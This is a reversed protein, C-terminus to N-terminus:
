GAPAVPAPRARGKKPIGLMLFELALRPNANLAMQEMTQRVESALRTVEQTTLLGAQRELEAQYDVNTVGAPCGSKVLMLDRWWGLWLSLLSEIDERSKEFRGAWEQALGLREAYDLSTIEVLINLSKSRHELHGGGTAATM